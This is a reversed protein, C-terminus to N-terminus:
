FLLTTEKREWPLYLGWHLADETPLLRVLVSSQSLMTGEAEVRALVPVLHSQADRALRSTM